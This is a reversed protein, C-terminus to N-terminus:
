SLVDSGMIYKVLERNQTFLELLVDGRSLEDNVQKLFNDEVYNLIIM